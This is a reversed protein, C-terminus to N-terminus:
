RLMDIIRDHSHAKNLTEALQLPTQKHSDTVSRKAGCKLLLGVMAEDKHKVATHLAFKTAGRMTKKQTHMDTFGHEKCWANVKGQAAALESAERDKAAQEEAARQAELRKREEDAVRASEEAAAAAAAAAEQRAQEEAARRAAEEAERLAERRQREEEDKKAAAAAAAAAAVAAAAEAEKRRAEEEERQRREEADRQEEAEHEQHGIEAISNVEGKAGIPLVLNPNVKVTDATPDASNCPRCSFWGNVMADSPL